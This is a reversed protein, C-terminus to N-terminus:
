AGRTLIRVVMWVQWLDALAVLATLGRLAWLHFRTEQPKHQEAQGTIVFITMLGISVVLAYVDPKM